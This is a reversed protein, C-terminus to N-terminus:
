NNRQGITKPIETRLPLSSWLHQLMKLFSQKWLNKTFLNLLLGALLLTMIPMLLSMLIWVLFSRMMNGKPIKRKPLHRIIVLISHTMTTFLTLIM